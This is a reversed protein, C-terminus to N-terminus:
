NVSASLHRLYNLVALTQGLREASRGLLGPIPLWSLQHRAVVDQLHGCARHTLNCYLAKLVESHGAHSDEQSFEATAASWTLIRDTPQCFDQWLSKVVSSPPAQHIDAFSLGM